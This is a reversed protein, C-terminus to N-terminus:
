GVSCPKGEFATKENQILFEELCEQLNKGHSFLFPWGFLLSPMRTRRRPTRLVRQAVPTPKPLARFGRESFAM